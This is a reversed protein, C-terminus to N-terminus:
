SRTARRGSPWCTREGAGPRPSMPWSGLARDLWRESLDRDGIVARALERAFRLTFAQYISAAVSDRDM